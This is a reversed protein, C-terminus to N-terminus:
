SLPLFPWLTSICCVVRVEKWCLTWLCLTSALTVMVFAFTLIQEESFDKYAM